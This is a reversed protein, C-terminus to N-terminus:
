TWMLIHWSTMSPFESLTRQSSLVSKRRILVRRHRHDLFHFVRNDGGFYVWRGVDNLLIDGVARGRPSVRKMARWDSTRMVTGVMSSLVILRAIFISRWISIHGGDVVRRECFLPRDPGDLAVGLHCRERVSKSFAPIGAGCGANINM